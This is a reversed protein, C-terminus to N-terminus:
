RLANEAARASPQNDRAACIMTLMMCEFFSEKLDKLM